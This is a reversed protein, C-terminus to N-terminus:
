PIIVRNGELQDVSQYSAVYVAIAVLIAISTCQLALSLGIIIIYRKRDSSPDENELPSLFPTENHPLPEDDQYTVNKQSNYECNEEPDM